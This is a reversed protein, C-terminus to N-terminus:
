CVGLAAGLSSQGARCLGFGGRHHQADSLRAPYAAQVTGTQPMLLPGTIPVPPAPWVEGPQAIAPRAAPQPFGRVRDFTETHGTLPAASFAEALGPDNQM